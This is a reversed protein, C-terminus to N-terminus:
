GRIWEVIEEDMRWAARQDDTMREFELSEKLRREAKRSEIAALNEREWLLRDAEDRLQLQRRTERDQALIQELQLRADIEERRLGLQRLVLFLRSRTAGSPWSRAKIRRIVRHFAVDM